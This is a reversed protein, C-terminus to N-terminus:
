SFTINEYQENLTFVTSHGQNEWMNTGIKLERLNIPVYTKATSAESKHYFNALFNLLSLTSFITKKENTIKLFLYSPTGGINLTTIKISRFIIPSHQLMKRLLQHM